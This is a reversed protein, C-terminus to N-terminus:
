NSQKILVKFAEFDFNKFFIEKPVYLFQGKSFYILWYTKSSIIKQINTTNLKNENDNSKFHLYEKDFSMSVDNFIPNHGKSNSWFYLYIFTIFPYLLSFIFMVTSFTNKGFGKLYLFGLIFIALYMWWLKKLRTLMVIKTYEKRSLSFIKTEIM